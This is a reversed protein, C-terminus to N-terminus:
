MEVGRVFTEDEFSSVQTLIFIKTNRRCIMFDKKSAIDKEIM